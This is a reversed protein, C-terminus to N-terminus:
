SWDFAIHKVQPREKGETKRIQVLKWTFRFVHSKPMTAALFRSPTEGARSDLIHCSSASKSFHLCCGM